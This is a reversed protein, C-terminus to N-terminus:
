KKIKNLFKEMSKFMIKEYDCTSKYDDQKLISILSQVRNNTTRFYKKVPEIGKTKINILLKKSEYHEKIYDLGLYKCFIWRIDAHHIRCNQYVNHKKLYHAYNRIKNINLKNEEHIKDLTDAEVFFDWQETSNSFIESLFDDLELEDSVKFETHRDCFIHINKNINNFTGSLKIYNVPGYITEM